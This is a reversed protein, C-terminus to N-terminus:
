TSQADIIRPLGTAKRLDAPTAAKASFSSRELAFKAVARTDIDQTVASVMTALDLASEHDITFTAGVLNVDGLSKATREDVIGRAHVLTNRVLICKSIAQRLKEDQILHFGTQRSIETHRELFSLYALEITKRSALSQILSKMSRHKLVTDVAVKEASKLMAPKALYIERLLDSVYSEFAEIVGTFLLQDYIPARQLYERFHGVEGREANNIISPDVNEKEYKALVRAANLSKEELWAFKKVLFVHAEVIRNARFNFSHLAATGPQNLDFLREEDSMAALRSSLNVHLEPLPFPM